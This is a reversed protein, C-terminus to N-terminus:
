EYAFLEKYSELQIGRKRAEMKLKNNEDETISKLDHRPVPLRKVGRFLEQFLGLRVDGVGSLQAGARVYKYLDAIEATQTPDLATNARESAWQAFSTAFLVWTITKSADKSAPPQRFEITRKRDMLSTFNWRFHPHVFDEEHLTLQAHMSDKSCCCLADVLSEDSEAQAIDSFIRPISLQNYRANWRNSMCYPNIRRHGPMLADICREFFIAAKAIGKSEDLSWPRGNAPSLHVHTSCEKTAHVEFERELV